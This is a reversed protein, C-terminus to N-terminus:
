REERDLEQLPVASDVSQAAVAQAQLQRRRVRSPDIADLLEIYLAPSALGFVIAIVAIYPQGLQVAAAAVIASALLNTLVGLIVGMRGPIIAGLLNRLGMGGDLSAIPLLNFVGWGLNVFLWIFALGRAGRPPEFGIQGLFIVIALSALGVVLSVGPGAFAVAAMRAHSLSEASAVDDPATLGGLVFFRISAPVGFHRFVLAHGLEHALLAVIGLVIWAILFVTNLRSLMGLVLLGAVISPGISVPIGLVRFSLM